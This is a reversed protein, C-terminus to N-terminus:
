MTFLIWNGWFTKNNNSMNPINDWHQKRADPWQLYINRSYSFCLMFMTSFHLSFTDNDNHDHPSTYLYTPPFAWHIVAQSKVDRWFDDWKEEGPVKRYPLPMGLDIQDVKQDPNLVPTYKHPERLSGPIESYVQTKRRSELATVPKQLKSHIKSREGSFFHTIQDWLSLPPHFDGARNPNNPLNSTYDSLYQNWKQAWLISFHMHSLCINLVYRMPIKATIGICRGIACLELSLCSAIRQVWGRRKRAEGTSTTTSGSANGYM